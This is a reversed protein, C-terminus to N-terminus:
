NKSIRFMEHCTGCNDKGMASFAAKFSDLDKVSTQAAKSAAGWKAMAAKFGEMDSWIKPSATTEGGTKSDDPFLAPMKEAANAYVVFVQVAKANDYPASGRVMAAGTKAAAGVGKMIEKREAIAKSQAIVASAGLAIALAACVATRVIM